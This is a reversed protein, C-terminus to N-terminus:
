ATSPSRKFHISDREEWCEEGSHGPFSDEVVGGWGSTGTVVFEFYCLWAVLSLFKQFQSWTVISGPFNIISVLAHTRPISSPEGTSVRSCNLPFSQGARLGMELGCGMELAEAERSGAERLWRREAM